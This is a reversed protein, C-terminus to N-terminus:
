KYSITICMEDADYFLFFTDRKGTTGEVHWGQEALGTYFDAIPASNLHITLVNYDTDFYCQEIDLSRCSISYNNEVTAVDWPVTDDFWYCAAPGLLALACVLALSVYKMMSRLKERKILM